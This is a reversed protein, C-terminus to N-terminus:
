KLEVVKGNKGIAWNKANQESAFAAIVHGAKNVVTWKLPRQKM